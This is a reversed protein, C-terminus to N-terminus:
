AVHATQRALPQEARPVFRAEPARDDGETWQAKWEMERPRSPGDETRCETKEPHRHGDDRRPEDPFRHREETRRAPWSADYTSTVAGTGGEVGRPAGSARFGRVSVVLENTVTDQFFLDPIAHRSGANELHSHFPYPM